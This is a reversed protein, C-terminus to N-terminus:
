HACLEGQHPLSSQAFACIVSLNSMNQTANDIIEIRGSFELIVTRSQTVNSTATISKITSCVVPPLSCAPTPRFNVGAKQRTGTIVCTDTIALCLKLSDTSSNCGHYRNSPQLTQVPSAYQLRITYVSSPAIEFSRPPRATNTPPPLIGAAAFLRAPPPKGRM